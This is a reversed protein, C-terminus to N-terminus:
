YDDGYRAHIVIHEGSPMTCKYDDFYRGECNTWAKFSTFYFGKDLMDDLGGYEDEAYEIIEKKTKGGNKMILELAEDKTYLRMYVPKEEESLNRFSCEPYPCTYIYLHSDKRWREDDEELAIILAHDISSNTEFCGRREKVIM